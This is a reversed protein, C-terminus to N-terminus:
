KFREDSEPWRYYGIGFFLMHSPMSLSKTFGKTYGITVDFIGLPARAGGSLQVMHYKDKGTIEQLGAVDVFVYLGQKLVRAQTLVGYNFSSHLRRDFHDALFGKDLRRIAGVNIAVTLISFQKDIGMNVGFNQHGSGAMQEPDGTAFIFFPSVTIGVGTRTRRLVQYKLGVYVDGVGTGSLEKTFKDDVTRDIHIPLHVDLELGNLLGIGAEFEMIQASKIVTIERANPTVSRIVVPRFLYSYVIQLATDMKWLTDSTQTYFGGRGIGVPRIVQIELGFSVGSGLLVCVCLFPLLTKIRRIGYFLGFVMIIVIVEHMNGGKKSYSCMAGSGEVKASPSIHHEDPNDKEWVPSTSFDREETKSCNRHSAEWKLHAFLIVLCEEKDSVGLCCYRDLYKPYESISWTPPFLEVFDSFGDGDTDWKKPDTNCRVEDEDLLGDDDDDHDCPEDGEYLPKFSWVDDEPNGDSDSDEQQPNKVWPCNDDCKNSKGGICQTTPNGGWDLAMPIGTKCDHMRTPKVKWMSSPEGNGDGDDLVGDNDDDNDCADGIKDGDHDAQEKERAWRYSGQEVGNPVYPCNDACEYTFWKGCPHNPYSVEVTVSAYVYTMDTCSPIVKFEGCIGNLGEDLIGDNDDDLDCADGGVLERQHAANKPSDPTLFNWHHEGLESYPGGKYFKNDSEKDYDSQDPNYWRPCNDQENLIGDGDMDEDCADGKGDGDVDAQNGLTIDLGFAVEKSNKTFPCNDDCQYLQGTKCFNDGLIGSKDGDDFIEDNDDDLDCADGGKLYTPDSQKVQLGPYSLNEYGSKGTDKDHDTQDPNYWRPCNDILNAINDNDMDPDCLDGIGDFDVDSQAEFNGTKGNKILRCNDDCGKTEGTKCPNDGEIGSGDGDDLIGDNDDDLDCADGIGDNDTDTQHGDPILPCVDTVDLVGDNDDDPDICDAVYDQDSDLFGEDILLNCNDDVGNCVEKADPNINHNQDNCDGCKCIKPDKVCEMEKTCFGDGDLDCNEDTNGDCDNDKDDCMEPVAGVKPLCLQIKGEICWDTEYFCEGVGCQIKGLDDIKGNCDNDKGDCKEKTAGKFPDCVNPKGDKCNPETHLCEGKGCTTSGLDEDTQGDCDDDKGNCVEQGTPDCGSSDGTVLAMFKDWNWGPGPDTHCSSGGGNGTPCGPVENHGIIHARDKPIGYKDCIYATLKAASKYAADTFWKNPEEIYGEMEYGISHANYEWNGAHWAIDKELVMQTVEGDASRVVYHTSAKANCNQFWSITGTYSGQAVHVIVYHIDGKKRDSQTYNCSAAPVWKAPPYDPSRIGEMFGDLILDHDVFIPDFFVPSYVELSWTGGGELVMLVQELFLRIISPNDSSAFVKSARIWRILPDQTEGELSYYYSLLAAGAMVNANPDNRVLWPALGALKAAEVLSPTTNDTKLGMFGVAHYATEERNEGGSVVMSISWLLSPPCKYIDCAQNFIDAINEEGMQYIPSFDAYVKPASLSTVLFLLISIIRKSVLRRLNNISWLLLLLSLILDYSQFGASCGGGGLSSNPHIPRNPTSKDWLPDTAYDRVEKTQDCGREKNIIIHADLIDKICKPDGGCCFNRLFRPEDKGVFGPPILEVFDSFGDKDTDWSKPDTRCKVEAFDLLGDDDDDDDCPEDGEYLPVFGWQDDEPNRDGDFDEQKPNFVWPCNDDCKSSLNGENSCQTVQFGIWDIKGLRGTECDIERKGRFKWGTTPIGDGDGDDPVGDNDDDIDCADGSGDQDHDAQMRERELLYSSKETGNKKHICNDDCDETTWRGCPHHKLDVEGGEQSIYGKEECLGVWKGCVEKHNSWKDLIGDNDDDLDCADGGTLFRPTTLNIEMNPALYNWRHDGDSSYDGGGKAIDDEKDNDAQDPNYWRPCNDLQNIIGDQDMDQDCADGIGDSDTDMQNGLIPDLGEEVESFNKIFKCNDDCGITFGSKCPQNAELGDGGGDDLIGDNDDDIDCADGGKWLVNNTEDFILGPYLLNESGDIATDHDHDEQNPNFWRPCNDYANEVNDNDQDPDCVDGLGDHDVDSQTGYKDGKGNKVLPCNDDCWEFMGTQCPNDSPNGSGDGDDLVGDGDDDLDCVNGAGDGDTDLQEPNPNLPCNDDIDAVGDNDDDFDVCNAIKDGDFDAFGDDINGNCDDDIGNCVEKAEPNVEKKHDNCDFCGKPCIKPKGLCSMLTTCFGDKDEDCREDTQGDCDNDKDDCVETTAGLKDYCIQEIGLVCSPTVYKCEGVGCTLDPLDEDAEGDCDNDYGDCIEKEPEDTEGDCDDDKGNKCIEYTALCGTGKCPGTPTEDPVQSVMVIFCEGYGCGGGFYDAVLPSTDIIYPVGCKQLGKEEVWDAPGNDQVDVVVCKGDKELKLKAGCHFAMRETSYWWTGDAIPGCSTPHNCASPDYHPEKCGGYCTLIHPWPPNGDHKPHMASVYTTIEKEDKKTDNEPECAIICIALFTVSSLIFIKM